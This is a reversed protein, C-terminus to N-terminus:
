PMFYINSKDQLDQTAYHVDHSSEYDSTVLDIKILMAVNLFPEFSYWASM